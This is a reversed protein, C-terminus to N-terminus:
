GPVTSVKCYIMKPTSKVHIQTKHDFVNEGQEFRCGIYRTIYFTSVDLSNMTPLWRSIVGRCGGSVGSYKM